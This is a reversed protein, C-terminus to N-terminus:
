GRLAERFGSTYPPVPSPNRSGSDRVSDASLSLNPSASRLRGGNQNKRASHQPQTEEEYPGGPMGDGAADAKDTRVM